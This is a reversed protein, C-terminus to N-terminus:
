RILSAAAALLLTAIATCSVLALLTWDARDAKLLQDVVDREDLASTPLAPFCRSNVNM